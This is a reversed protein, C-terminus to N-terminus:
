DTRRRSRASRTSRPASTPRGARQPRRSRFHQWEAAWSRDEDGYEVEELEPPGLEPRMRYIRLTQPGYSGCSGTSRSSRAGATSRSRSRREEVGDLERAADGLARQPRGARRAAARRQGRGARGLLAHAAARSHLPLPGLSGTARPRAPAHGPRDARRRRLARARRAVRPRLRPPRRPRLPRAHVHDRRSRRLAGGRGARAIGPHFRHNFGVKVCGGSAGRGDRSPPRSQAAGLGAPKEVLM